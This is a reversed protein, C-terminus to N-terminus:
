DSSICYRCAKLHGKWMSPSSLLFTLTSIVELQRVFSIDPNYVIVFVPQVEWLVGMDKGDVALFHVNQLLPSTEGDGDMMAEEDALALMVISTFNM